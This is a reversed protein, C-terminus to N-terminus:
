QAAVALKGLKYAKVSPANMAISGDLNWGIFTASVQNTLFAINVRVSHDHLGDVYDALLSQPDGESM